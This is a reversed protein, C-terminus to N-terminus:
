RRWALFKEFWRKVRPTLRTRNCADAVHKVAEAQTPYPHIVSGLSCLGIRRVMALTLENIMDGANAAVIASECGFHLM